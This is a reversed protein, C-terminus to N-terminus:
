MFIQNRSSILLVYAFRHNFTGAFLLYFVQLCLIYLATIRGVGWGLWNSYAAGRKSGSVSLKFPASTWFKRSQFLLHNSSNAVMVNKIPLKKSIALPYFCVINKLVFNLVNAFIITFTPLFVRLVQNM